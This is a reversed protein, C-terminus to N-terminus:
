LLNDLNIDGLFGNQFKSSYSVGTNLYSSTNNNSNATLVVAAGKVKKKGFNGAPSTTAGPTQAPQTPQNADQGTKFVGKTVFDLLTQLDADQINLKVFFDTVQSRQTEDPFLETFAADIAQRQQESAELVAKEEQTQKFKDINDVREKLKDFEKLKEIVELPLQPTQVDVPTTTNVIEQPLNSVNEPNVPAINTTPNQLVQQAQPQSQKKSPKFEETKTMVNGNADVEQQQLRKTNQTATTTNQQQPQPVPNQQQQPQTFTNNTQDVTNALEQLPYGHDLQQNSQQNNALNINKNGSKEVYSSDIYSRQKEIQSILETAAKKLANICPKGEGNCVGKIRAIDGYAPENVVALHLPIFDTTAEGAKPPNLDFIQPSVYFSSAGQKINDIEPGTNMRIYAFWAQKNKDESFPEYKVDVIEGIKYQLDHRLIDEVYTPSSESVGEQSYPPHDGSAHKILPRGIFSSAYKKLAENPVKWFNQNIDDNILFAKVYTEQTEPNTAVNIIKPYHPNQQQQQQQQQTLSL